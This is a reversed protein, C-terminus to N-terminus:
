GFIADEVERAAREGTEVAGELYGQADQSTHEGCFWANGEPEGEVGAFLQYQGVRWYSYSCRSLPNDHWTDLTAFGNAQAVAGPLVPEIQQAFQQARLLASAGAFSEAYTGGSYDVLIGSTGGQGRTVEWTAQYGLDSFTDGNCGLGRWFRTAFQVNLKSNSGRGLEQIALRKRASWASASLDVASRLVAFPLAFVVHDFDEEITSGPTAFTLRISGSALKRVALLEHQPRLQAAVGTALASPLRDNGGIIKYKENSPGFLRVRGPGSYGLLYLLNLASQQDVEAGYEINYAVALLQGLPSRLGDPVTAEIWQEISLADLERGRATSIQYTTPYSAESLDRHMRRWIARLDRSVDRLDYGAGFFHLCAETGNAEAALVNVLPLRLEQALQRISSHSQDILEGGHEAIQGEAFDGRRTWCRGGFRTSAEYLEAAIGRQKLRYACTLGALGGGVIAVRAGGARRPVRALPLASALSAAMGAAGSAALFRRRDITPAPHSAGEPAQHAQRFLAAVLQLLPTRPTM